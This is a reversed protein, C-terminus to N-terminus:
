QQANKKHFVKELDCFCTIQMFNRGFKATNM